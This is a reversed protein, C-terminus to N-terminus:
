HAGRKLLTALLVAISDIDAMDDATFRIDFANEVSALMNVHALSDWEEIDAPTTNETICLSDDFFQDRFIREIIKLAGQKWVTDM